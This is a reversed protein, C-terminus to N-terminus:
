RWVTENADTFIANHHDILCQVVEIVGYDPTAGDDLPILTSVDAAEDTNAAAHTSEVLDVTKSPGSSIYSLHGHFDSKSDGRQWIMLPALEVALSCSDMKNLSSKQSVRLLLATIYELTSYNVNPLKSLLNRVDNINSRAERIDHYMEFTTLPEPLSSLYCKILSAVDLPKSGEPLTANSDQNYLSILQRVAKRNGEQKFLNETHLGSFFCTRLIEADSPMINSIILVDCMIGDTSAVGKQWREINSLLTKSKDSTIKAAEEVKVKGMAVVDKTEAIGKKLLSTTVTAASLIQEQLTERSPSSLRQKNEQLLAWRGKVISGVREAAEAVSEGADKAFTGASQSAQKLKVGSSTFFGNAKQRWRPSVSSHM